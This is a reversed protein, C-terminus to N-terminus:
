RACTRRRRTFSSGWLSPSSCRPCGRTSSRGPASPCPPHTTLAHTSIHAHTRHSACGLFTGVDLRISLGQTPMDRLYRMTARPGPTGTQLAVDIFANALRNLPANVRFFNSWPQGSDAVLTGNYWLTPAMKAAAGFGTSATTAGFDLAFPYSAYGNPAQQKNYGSFLAENIADSSPAAVPPMSVCSMSTAGLLSGIGSLNGRLTPPLARCDAAIYMLARGLFASNSQLNSRQQLQATGFLMTDLPFLPILEASRSLDGIPGSANVAFLPLATAQTAAFMSVTGNSARAAAIRALLEAAIATLKATSAADFFMGNALLQAQAQASASSPATYLFPSPRSFNAKGSSSDVSRTSGSTPAQWTENFSADDVIDGRVSGSAPRYAPNGVQVLPAWRIPKENACFPRNALESYAFGCKEPASEYGGSCTLSGRDWFYLADSGPATLPYNWVTQNDANV